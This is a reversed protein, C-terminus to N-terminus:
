LASQTSADSNRYILEISTSIKIAIKEYLGNDKKKSKAIADYVRMSWLDTSYFIFFWVLHHPQIETCAKSYWGQGNLEQWLGNRIRQHM